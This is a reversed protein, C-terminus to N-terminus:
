KTINIKKVLRGDNTTLSVTYIGDALNKLDVQLTTSGATLNTTKNYVVQGLANIVTVTADSSRGSSVILNTVGTSPNPYLVMSSRSTTIKPIGVTPSELQLLNINDLYLNNGNNNTVVFKVLVNPKNYGPFTINETRWEDSSGPVYVTNSVPATTSLTSGHASYFNTWTAGCDMSAFVELKDDSTYNRQAYAVDFFMLPDVTGSLDVPPLILEDQDGIVTNKYFDYKASQLPGVNFGGAATSRSWGAGANPNVVTFGAPPFAGMVFGEEIPNTQYDTAVLYNTKGSNNSPNFDVANISTVSYSFVHSNNVTGTTMASLPITTYAGPALNGTWYNVAGAVNDVAPTITMSTIPDAGNNFVTVEPNINSNCTVPVKAGAALADNTLLAKGSRVAQAVKKNGDDQIFGVFAIEAKERVYSPLPCNLTFTQTQGTTWTSAMAVGSQISPFSKIVANEFVTEGNSGPSSAFQIREEVMVTRFVLSGVSSFPATAQISVTLTVSTGTADWARNMTVSFASTYSQATAIVGNSVYAPHDNPAGFVWQHQGDFLGSPASSIGPTSPDTQVWQSQYGYGSGQYRWDIEAKNTKYLSWTATPASPIPVQWKISVVKATNSPAALILNLAPNTSACPPCNEGTFEEFLSLRPTQATVTLGLFLISLALLNKNM